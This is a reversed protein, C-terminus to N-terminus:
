EAEDSSAEEASAESQGNIVMMMGKLNEDAAIAENLRSTVERVLGEVDERKSIEELYANYEPTRASKDIFWSGDEAQCIYFRSMSPAPTDINIFKEEYYVYVIHSNEVPGPLSYCQINMYGERVRANSKLKDESDHVDAPRIIEELTEVDANQIAELYSRVLTSIQSAEGEETLRDSDDSEDGTPDAAKEITMEETAGAITQIKDDGGERRSTVVIVAIILGAAVALIGLYPLFLM